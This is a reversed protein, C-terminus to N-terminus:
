FLCSPCIFLLTKAPIKDITITEPILATGASASSAPCSSSTATLASTLVSTGHAAESLWAKRTIFWAFTGGFVLSVLCAALSTVLSNIFPRYFLQLSNKDFLVVNLGAHGAREAALYGAPGGGIVILDFM